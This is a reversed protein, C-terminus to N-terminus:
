KIYIELDAATVIKDARVKRKATKYAKLHAKSKKGIELFHVESARFKKNDDRFQRFLFTKIESERGTYEQDIIISQIKNLDDKILLYLLLAFTQYVFARGRNKERFKMQLKRKEVAKILISKSKTNSYALVTDVKTYEIRGSQDIEIQM